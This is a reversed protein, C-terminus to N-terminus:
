RFRRAMAVAVLDPPTSVAERIAADHDSDHAAWADLYSGFTVARPEGWASVHGAVFVPALLHSRELRGLSSFLNTRAEAMAELVGDLPLPEFRQIAEARAALLMAPDTTRALWTEAGALLDAVLADLFADATAAHELHNRASWADDPATRSWLAPPIADVLGLLAHRRGEARQLFVRVEPLMM